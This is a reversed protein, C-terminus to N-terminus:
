PPKRATLNLTPYPLTPLPSSFTNSGNPNCKDFILNFKEHNLKFAGFAAEADTAIEAILEPSLLTTM